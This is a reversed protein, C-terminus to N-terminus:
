RRSAKDPLEGTRVLDAAIDRLKRNTTSSAKVLVRFAADPSCKYRGILIGQAQGIVSRTALAQQLQEVKVGLDVGASPPGDSNQEPSQEPPQEPTHQPTSAPRDSSRGSRDDESRDSEDPFDVGRGRLTDLLAARRRLLTRLEIDAASASGWATRATHARAAYELQSLEVVLAATARTTAARMTASTEPRNRHRAPGAEPARASVSSM